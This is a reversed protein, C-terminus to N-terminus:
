NGGARLSGLIFLCLAATNISCLALFFYVHVGCLDAIFLNLATTIVCIATLGVTILRSFRDVLWLALFSTTSVFLLVIAAQWHTVLDSLECHLEHLMTALAIAAGTAAGILRLYVLWSSEGPSSGITQASQLLSTSDLETHNNM